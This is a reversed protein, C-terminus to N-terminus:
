EQSRRKGNPHQQLILDLEQKTAERSIFDRGVEPTIGCSM